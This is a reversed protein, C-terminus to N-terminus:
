KWFWGKGTRLFSHKMAKEEKETSEATYLGEWNEQHGPHSNGSQRQQKSWGNVAEKSEQKATHNM